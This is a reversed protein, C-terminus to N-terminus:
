DRLERLPSVTTTLSVDALPTLSFLLGRADFVGTV